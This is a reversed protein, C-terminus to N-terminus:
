KQRKKQKKEKREGQKSSRRDINRDPEVKTRQSTAVPLPAVSPYNDVMLVMEGTRRECEELWEKLAQHVLVM